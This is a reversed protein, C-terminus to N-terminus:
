TCPHPTKTGKQATSSKDQPCLLLLAEEIMLEHATPSYELWPYAPVHYLHNSAVAPLEEWEKSARLQEWYRLSAPDEDIVLLLHAPKCAALFDIDIQKEVDIRDVDYPCHLQLDGFLLAGVNRMGYIILQGSSIRLLMVTEEGLALRLQKRAQEAKNRYDRLWQVAKEELQLFKAIRGFHSRWDESLWPIVLCPGIQKMAAGSEGRMLLDDCIIVSPQVESLTHCDSDWMQHEMFLTRRLHVAIHQHYQERHMERQRNVQTAFPIVGLALLHSTYTYSLCAIRELKSRSFATPTLGVVQKFKKRFYTEDAYGSHKAAEKISYNQLVLLEKARNLRIDNLYHMPSSGKIKKFLYSYYWPSLGAIEALKDRSIDDAYYHEMYSITRQIIEESPTDEELPRLDLLMYMLKQFLMDPRNRQQEKPDRLSQALQKVTDVLPPMLQQPLAGYTPFAATGKQFHREMETNAIEVLVDFAIWALELGRTAGSKVEYEDGSKLLFGSGEQLPYTRGFLHIM